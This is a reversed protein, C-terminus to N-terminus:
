ARPDVLFVANKDGEVCEHKLLFGSMERLKPPEDVPTFRTKTSNLEGGTNQAFSSLENVFNESYLM